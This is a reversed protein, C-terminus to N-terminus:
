LIEDESLNNVLVGELVEARKMKIELSNHGLTGREIERELKLNNEVQSKIRPYIERARSCLTVFRIKKITREVNNLQNQLRIMSNTERVYKRFNNVNAVEPEPDTNGSAQKEQHQALQLKQQEKRQDSKRNNKHMETVYQQLFQM